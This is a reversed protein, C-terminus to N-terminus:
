KDPKSDTPDSKPNPMRTSEKGNLVAPARPDNPGLPAPSSSGTSGLLSGDKETPKAADDTTRSTGSNPVSRDIPPPTPDSPPQQQAHAAGTLGLVVFLALRM